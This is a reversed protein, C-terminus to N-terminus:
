DWIEIGYIEYIFWIDWIDFTPNYLIYGYILGMYIYIWIHIYTYIYIHVYTYIFIGNSIHRLDVVMIEGLVM